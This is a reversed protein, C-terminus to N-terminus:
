HQTSDSRSRATQARIAASQGRKANVGTQGSILEFFPTNSLGFWLCAAFQFFLFLFCCVKEAQMQQEGTQLAQGRANLEAELTSVHAQLPRAAEVQKLLADREESVARLSDHQAKVTAKLKATETTRETLEKTKAALQEDLKKLSTATKRLTSEQAKTRKQEEDLATRLNTVVRNTDELHSVLLKKGTQEDALLFTLDLV